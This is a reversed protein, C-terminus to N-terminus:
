YTRWWDLSTLVVTTVFLLTLAPASALYKKM